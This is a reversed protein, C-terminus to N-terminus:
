QGTAHGKASVLKGIGKLAEELQDQIDIDKFITFQARTERGDYGSSRGTVIV